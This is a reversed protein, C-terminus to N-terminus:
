IEGGGLNTFVALNERFISRLRARRELLFDSYMRVDQSPLIDEPLWRVMDAIRRRDLSEISSLAENLAGSDEVAETVFDLHLYSNPPTDLLLGLNSPTEGPGVLCHSHDNLLMLYRKVPTGQPRVVRVKLNSRTRDFNCIWSDLVVMGYVKDKNECLSFLEKRIHPYYSGRTMRASAFYLRDHMEVICFDLIPLALFRALSAAVWENAAVYRHLPTLGPGKIVYESGNDALILRAYSTGQGIPGLDDVVQLHEGASRSM